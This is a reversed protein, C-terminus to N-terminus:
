RTHGPLTLTSCSSGQGCSRNQCPSAAAQASAGGGDSVVAACTSLVRSLSEGGCAPCRLDLSEAQSLALHEFVEQCSECRFEYIPM